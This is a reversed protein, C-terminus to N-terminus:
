RSSCCEGKKKIGKCALEEYHKPITPCDSTNCSQSAVLSLSLSAAILLILTCHRSLMRPTLKSPGRSSFFQPSATSEIEVFLSYKAYNLLDENRSTQSSMKKDTKEEDNQKGYRVQQKLNQWAVPNLDAVFPFHAILNHKVGVLSPTKQHEASWKIFKALVYFDVVLVILSRCTM